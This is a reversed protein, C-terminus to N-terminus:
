SGGKLSSHLTSRKISFLSLPDKALLSARM